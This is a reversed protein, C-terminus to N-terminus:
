GLQVASVSPQIAELDVGNATRGASDAPIRPDIAAAGAGFIQRVVNLQEDVIVTTPTMTIGWLKAVQQDVDVLLSYHQSLGFEQAFQTTPAVDAISLVVFRKLDPDLPDPSREGNMVSELLEHCPSCHPSIVIFATKIGRFESIKRRQGDLSEASFGPLPTGTKIKSPLPSLHDSRQSLLELNEYIVGLNHAVAVLAAAVVLFLVWLAATSIMWLDM